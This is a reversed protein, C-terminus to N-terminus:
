DPAGAKRHAKQKCDLAALLATGGAHERVLNTASADGNAEEM